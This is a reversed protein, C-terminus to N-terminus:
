INSIFYSFSYFSLMYNQPHNLTCKYLYNMSTNFKFLNLNKGYIHFVRSQLAAKLQSL